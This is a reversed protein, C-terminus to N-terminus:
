LGVESMRNNRENQALCPHANVRKWQGTYGRMVIHSSFRRDTLCIKVANMLKHGCRALGWRPGHWPRRHHARRIHRSLRGLGDPLRRNRDHGHGMFKRAFQPWGNPLSGCAPRNPHNSRSPFPHTFRARGPMWWAQWSTARIPGGTLTPMGGGACLGSANSLPGTRCHM